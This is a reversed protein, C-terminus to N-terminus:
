LLLDRHINIIFLMGYKKIIFVLKYQLCYIKLIGRSSFKFFIFNSPILFRFSIVEKTLTRPFQVKTSAINHQPM